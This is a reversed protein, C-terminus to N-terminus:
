RMALNGRSAPMKEGGEGCHVWFAPTQESRKILYIGKRQVTVELCAEEHLLEPATSQLLEILDSARWGEARVSQPGLVEENIDVFHHPYRSALALLCIRLSENLRLSPPYSPLVAQFSDFSREMAEQALSQFVEQQKQIQEEIEQVLSQSTQVQGKLAEIWDLFLGQVFQLNREQIANVSEVVAQESEEFANIVQSTAEPIHKKKM